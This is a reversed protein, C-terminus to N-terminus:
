LWGSNGTADLNRYIFMLLSYKAASKNLAISLNYLIIYLQNLICEIDM